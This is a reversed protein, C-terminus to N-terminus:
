KSTAQPWVTPNFATAKSLRKSTKSSNTGFNRQTSIQELFNLIMPLRVWKTHMKTNWFTYQLKGERRPNFANKLTIHKWAQAVDWPLSFALSWIGLRLSNNTSSLCTSSGTLPKTDSSTKYTGTYEVMPPIYNLSDMIVFLKTVKPKASKIGIKYLINM